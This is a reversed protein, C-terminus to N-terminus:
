EKNGRHAQYFDDVSIVPTTGPKVYRSIRQSLETINVLKSIVLEGKREDFNIQLRGGTKDLGLKRRLPAPLTTQGKSTITITNKMSMVICLQM